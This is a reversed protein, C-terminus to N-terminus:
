LGAAALAAAVVEPVPAFPDIDVAMDPQIGDAGFDLGGPTVWRAVTLKAAGGNSLPFRQQVTNKGFSPEGVVIARGAEQLAGAVVESASASARNLILVLPISEDTGLGGPQVEYPVEEDPSQTRLVLGSELFESAVDIAAPLTGGPNNRLDFVLSTAGASLVEELALRVQEGANSAFFTLNIYGTTGVMEWSSVPVDFAARTITVEFSSGNRLFELTVDTGAPGRVTATVEDYGRGAVPDGDVTIMQDGTQLGAARAPSGEFTSIIVLRCSESLIQCPTNEPDDSALDETTVLAGIGEVQGGYEEEILSRAAPSLYASNRDLAEAMIGTLAAEVATAPDLNRQDIELCFDTFASPDPVFCTDSEPSSGDPLANLGALAASALAATDVPDVYNTEILAITECLISYDTEPAPCEGAVVDPTLVTTTTPAQTTTSTEPPTSASEDTSGTTPSCAAALLAIAAAMRASRM